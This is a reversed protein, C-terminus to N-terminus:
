VSVMMDDHAAVIEVRHTRALQAIQQHAKGIDKFFWSGFHTLIIKTTHPKFMRVLNPIGAHGYLRGRKDKRVLGGERLHSAEMIVCDLKGLKKRYKVDMWVMDGTYLIRKGGYEILYACSRVHSSHHTPIPQVHHGDITIARALALFAYVSREPAYVPIRKVEFPERVFAAHDPHLHTLFIALPKFRLFAREGLDCIVKGDVLIGSHLRHRPASASIEGRTGLIQVRM